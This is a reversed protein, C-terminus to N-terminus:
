GAEGGSERETANGEVTRSGISIRRPQRAEPKPVKVELVGRDFNAEIRDADVGDPLVLSRSFAGYSREVRYYGNKEEQAESRREGSIVLANDNVEIRLDDEDLGPLDAKLFIADEREFVDIPPAWRRGGNGQGRQEDFFGSFLRNMESQLTSLERTPDWRVLAM